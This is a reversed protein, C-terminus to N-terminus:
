RYPAGYIIGGNNWQNNLGRPLKLKSIEGVNREYIEGYNGTVKLAQYLFDHKLGLYRGLNVSVGLLRRVAGINSQLQQDLNEQSIGNEEANMLGFIVWRVLDEWASDDKRVAPALPEKSITEPLLIHDDPKRMRLRQAALASRDATYVDCRGSDYAAVAEPDEPFTLIQYRFNHENFFDTVNLESTTGSNCCITVNNLQDTSTIGSSKRVLFGQGDYFVTTTFIMGQEVDRTLTWTTNRSLVDVEGTQLAVFRDTASLPIYRVHVDDNFIAAGIARCIDVDFGSWTGDDNIISFGVLGESVGCKLYGRKKINNLTPTDAYLTSTAICAISILCLLYRTLM